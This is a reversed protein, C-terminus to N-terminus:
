GTLSKTASSREGAAVAPLRPARAASETLLHQLLYAM